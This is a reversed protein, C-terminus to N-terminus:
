IKQSGVNEPIKPNNRIDVFYMLIEPHKRFILNTKYRSTGSTGTDVV